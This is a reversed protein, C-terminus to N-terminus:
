RLASLRAQMRAAREPQETLLDRTEGPDTALDYLHGTKAQGTETDTAAFYEQGRSPEVYKWTGQRLALTGAQEVLEDRGHASKGLLADLVDVSDPAAGSPVTAGALRALSAVLDVQAVLATSEGHPVQGPWAVLWPVRTGGEFASYKGGRFPGAPRHGGLKAKADDRYGDDVVPGNDSTVIVLTSDALGESELTHLIRGVCDDFQVIADGRAGMETSGVFRPHPTRPVHIDSAAFCLFFPRDRKEALFACTRATLVDAIEEDKWRAATGGAFYGIRGIGNVITQDHGQSAQLRLLEPHEKGTAESGVPKAYDVVIPDRPDLGLVRQDELYVCPVRDNTAPLLFSREFGLERPGPAIRGNWDIAGDGLGLHWKGVYGTWYGAGRLVSALTARAPDLVLAANGPLVGTGKKRFAYEGSLLAYRSPTCTAAASHGDTFRLGRAALRDLNPTRVRSAGYCGVDGYGLDDAYLLLINPPRPAPSPSACALPLLLALLVSRRRLM